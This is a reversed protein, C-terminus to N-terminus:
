RMGGMMANVANAAANATMGANQMASQMSASAAMDVTEIGITGDAKHVPIRVGTVNQANLVTLMNASDAFDATFYSNMVGAMAKVACTFQQSATTGTANCSVGSADKLVNSNTAAM